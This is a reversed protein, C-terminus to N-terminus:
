AEGRLEVAESLRRILERAQDSDLLTVRRGNWTAVTLAIGGVRLDVNVAGEHLTEMAGDGALAKPDEAEYMASRVKEEILTIRRLHLSGYLPPM